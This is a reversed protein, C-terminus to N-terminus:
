KRRWIIDDGGKSHNEYRAVCFLLDSLRNFYILINTNEPGIKVIDREARRCVSTCLHTFASAATGGPLIFNKLEPTHEQYWDIKDELYKIDLDCQIKPNALDTGIEFLNRQISYLLPPNINHQAIAYGLMSNLEDISGLAEIIVHDKSVTVGNALKTKGQDGQKTYIKM